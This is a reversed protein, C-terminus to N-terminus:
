TRVQSLVVKLNDRETQEVLATLAEVLPINAKVLSALQRTMLALDRVPIRGGIFPMQASSSPKRTTKENMEVVMMNQKKLKLRAAKQSEAEIIGKLARGDPSYAKYDFIPAM